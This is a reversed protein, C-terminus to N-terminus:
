ININNINFTSNINFYRNASFDHKNELINIEM